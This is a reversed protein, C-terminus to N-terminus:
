AHSRYYLGVRAMSLASLMFAATLLFEIAAVDEEVLALAMQNRWQEMFERSIM